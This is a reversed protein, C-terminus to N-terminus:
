SSGMPNTKANVKQNIQETLESSMGFYTQIKYPCLYYSGTEIGEAGVDEVM